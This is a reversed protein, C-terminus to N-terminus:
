HNIEQFDGDFAFTEVPNRDYPKRYVPAERAQLEQPLLSPDGPKGIVIMAEIAYTAPIKFSTRAADYDFGGLTHSALGQRYAQLLLNQCAAGTDFSHTRAPQNNFTFHTRSIVLMLVSGRIAWQQNVPELLRFLRDWTTSGAHGFIFRWPQSNYSSPAWRAAEFLPMLEDQTMPEGSMARASWRHLILEEIPFAAARKKM